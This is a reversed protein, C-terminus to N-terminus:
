FKSPPEGVTDPRKRVAVMTHIDLTVIIPRTYLGQLRPGHQLRDVLAVTSPLSRLANACITWAPVAQVRGRM